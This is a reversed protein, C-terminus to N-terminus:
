ATEDPITKRYQIWGHCFNGSLHPNAPVGSPTLDDAKAQHETPSAHMPKERVFKDHLEIARELNMDFGDVTKYSTSGCRAVSLAIANRDSALAPIGDSDEIHLDDISVFPWHWRGPPLVNVQAFGMAKRIEGALLRFHPEAAEHDRLAFFNSWETSTVVVTIHSFPELLRNIIQKHYGLRAYRQAKKVAYDRAELWEEEADFVTRYGYDEKSEDDEMFEIHPRHGIGQMGPKNMGWVLPVFPDSMVDEILKAVPIARSSASNRSM